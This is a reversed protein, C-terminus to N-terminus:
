SYTNLEKQLERFQPVFSALLQWFDKSHNAYRMHCLEHAVVLYVYQYPLAALAQNISIRAKTKTCSGWRSKMFRIQWVAVKVGLAEEIPAASEKVVELLVEKELKYLLKSADEHSKIYLSIRLGEREIKLRKRLPDVIYDIQYTKGAIEIQKPMDYRAKEALAKKLWEKRTKEIYAANKQIQDEIQAKTVYPSSSIEIEGNERVYLTAHRKRNKILLRYSLGHEALLKQLKYIRSDFSEM